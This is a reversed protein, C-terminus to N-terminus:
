ITTLWLFSRDLADGTAAKKHCRRGLDSRNIAVVRELRPKANDGRTRKDFITIRFGRRNDCGTCRLRFQLDFVLTDSQVRHRRQLFGPHYEVSRECQCRVM